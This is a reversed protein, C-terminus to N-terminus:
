QSLLKKIQSIFEFSTQRNYPLTSLVSKDIRLLVIQPFIGDPNYQEALADNQEQEAVPLKKRHPFDAKLLVLNKSAFEKFDNESFPQSYGTALIGFFSGILLLSRIMILEKFTFNVPKISPLKYLASM